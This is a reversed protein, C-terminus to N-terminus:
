AADRVAILFCDGHPSSRVPIVEEVRMGHRTFMASLDSSRFQRTGTVDQGGLALRLYRPLKSLEAPNRLLNAARSVWKSPSRRARRRPPTDTRRGDADEPAIKVHIVIDHRTVRALEAVIRDLAEVSPLWQTFRTCVVVDFSGDAFPLHAADGVAPHCREMAEPRLKRAAALMDPSIDLAYVALGADVYESLFRGTGFPVDLVVANRPLSRIYAGVIAQQEQWEPDDRRRDEYRFAHDGTYRHRASYDIL